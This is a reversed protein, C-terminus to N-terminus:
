PAELNVAANDWGNTLGTPRGKAAERAGSLNRADLVITPVKTDGVKCWGAYDFATGAGNWAGQIERYFREPEFVALPVVRAEVDVSMPPWSRGLKLLTDKPANNWRLGGSWAQWHDDDWSIDRAYCRPGLTDTACPVNGPVYFGRSQVLYWKQPGKRPRVIATALRSTGIAIRETLTRAARQYDLGAAYFAGAFSVSGCGGGDYDGAADMVWPARTVAYRSSGKTRDYADRWKLIAECQDDSIRITARVFRHRTAPPLDAMSRLVARMGTLARIAELKAWEKPGGPRETALFREDPDTRYTGNVLTPDQQAKVAANWDAEADKRAYLKGDDHTEFMYVPGQKYADMFQTTAKGNAGTQSIYQPAADGCRVKLLVHGISHSRDPAKEAKGTDLANAAAVTGLTTVFQRYPNAWSIPYPAPMVGISVYSGPQSEPDLCPACDARRLAPAADSARCGAAMAVLVLARATTM